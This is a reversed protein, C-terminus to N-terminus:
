LCLLFITNLLWFKRCSHQKSAHILCRKWFKYFITHTKKFPLLSKYLYQCSIWTSNKLSVTQNQESSGKQILFFTHVLVSSSRPLYEISLSDSFNCKQFGSQTQGIIKWKIIKAFVNLSFCNAPVGFYHERSYSPSPICVPLIRYNNGM